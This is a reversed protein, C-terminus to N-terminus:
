KRKETEDENGTLFIVPVAELGEEEEFMKSSQAPLVSLSHIFPFKKVVKKKFDELEKKAKEIEGATKEPSQVDKKSDYNVPSSIQENLGASKKDEM